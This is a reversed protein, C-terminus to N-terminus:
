LRSIEELRANIKRTDQIDQDLVYTKIPRQNQRRIEEVIRSDDMTLPRGGVSMSMQSLIDGYQSVASRPIVAEGGELNYGGFNVGGMEHSNGQILMGRRGIYQQSKAFGLQQGIVAIQAASIAGVAAAFPIGFPLGFQSYTTLVSAAANAVADALTFRLESIRSKKELEFRKKAYEKEVREREAAAEETSDGITALTQDQQYQLQELLLSNQASIVQSIQSSIQQYVQLLKQAFAAAKAAAEDFKIADITKQIGAIQEDTLQTISAREEETAGDLRNKLNQFFLDIEGIKDKNNKIFSELGTTDALAEKQKIANDTIKTTLEALEIQVDRVGQYLKSQERLTKTTSELLELEVETLQTIDQTGFLKQAVLGNIEQQIESESKLNQLGTVEAINIDNILDQFDVWNILNREQIKEGDKLYVNLAKIRENTLTVQENYKTFGDVIDINTQYYDL